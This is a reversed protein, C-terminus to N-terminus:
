ISGYVREPTVMIVSRREERMSKDFDDWNSRPRGISAYAAEVLALQTPDDNDDWGQAVAPGEVTIYRRTDIKITTVACRGERRINKVKQTRERSVFVIKGDHPGASVVTAQPKGSASVTGVVALHNEQFFPLMENFDLHKDKRVAGM